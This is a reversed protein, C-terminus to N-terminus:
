GFCATRILEEGGLTTHHGHPTNVFLPLRMWGRKMVVSHSSWECVTNDVQVPLCGGCLVLTQKKLEFYEM